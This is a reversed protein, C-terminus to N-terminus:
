ASGCTNAVQTRVGLSHRVHWRSGSGMVFLVVWLAMRLCGSGRCRRSEASLSAEHACHMTHALM